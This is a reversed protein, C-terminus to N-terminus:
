QSPDTGGIKIDLPQAHYVTASSTHEIGPIDHGAIPRESAIFSDPRLAEKRLDSLLSVRDIRVQAQNLVDQGATDKAFGTFEGRGAVFELLASLNYQTKVNFLDSLEKHNDPYNINEPIKLPLPKLSIIFTRNM